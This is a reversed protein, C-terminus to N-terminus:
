KIKKVIGVSTGIGYSVHLILFLVPMILHQFYFGTKIGSLVTNTVAFVGYMGWLASLQWNGFLSLITTVM